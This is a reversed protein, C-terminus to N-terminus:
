HELLRRLARGLLAFQASVARCGRCLALHVQLEARERLSLRRDRAQSMLRTAERCSINM